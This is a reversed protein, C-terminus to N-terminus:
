NAIRGPAVATQAVTENRVMHRWFEVSWAPIHHTEAVNTQFTGQDIVFEGVRLFARDAANLDPRAGTLERRPGGHGM